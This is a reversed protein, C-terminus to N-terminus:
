LLIKDRIKQAIARMMLPPVARGLREWQQAYTGTLVFDDPFSCIRKLEAITFKRREVGAPNWGRGHTRITRSPDDPSQEPSRPATSKYTLESQTHARGHTLVAPSPGDLDVPPRRDPDDEVLSPPFRGNGNSRSPGTGITGSPVDSARMGGAGFRGNDGVRAIWPCADRVSYRYRLPVPHVPELDLDDRVGVFIIRARMQPVGLWQADLLRAKVRYGPAKLTRLIDLFYGKAVGKVLGSVNEAVFTKPMLGALIRAFEFFLDDTRQETDSYTKVQGWHEQRAGATSFSACPPSGDLLDLEGQQLGIAALIQAPDIARIDRGDVITGPRANLAYVERAAAVFENAWLVRFGAMRYGLSSGGAGAFTSVVNLGNWPVAAIEAMSPIAYPPRPPPVLRGRRREVQLRVEPM